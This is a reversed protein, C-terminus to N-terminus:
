EPFTNLRSYTAQDLARWTTREPFHPDYLAKRVADPSIADARTYIMGVPLLYDARTFSDPLDDTAEHSWERPRIFFGHVEGEGVIGQDHKYILIRTGQEIKLADHTAKDFPLPLTETWEDPVVKIAYLTTM